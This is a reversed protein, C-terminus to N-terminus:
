LPYPSLYYCKMVSEKFMVEKKRMTRPSTMLLAMFKERRTVRSCVMTTMITKEVRTIIATTIVVIDLTITITTTTGIVM